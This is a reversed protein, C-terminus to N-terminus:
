LFQVKKIGLITQKVVDSLELTDYFGMMSAHSACTTFTLSMSIDDGISARITPDNDDVFMDLFFKLDMLRRFYLKLVSTQDLQMVEPDVTGMTDPEVWHLMLWGGVMALDRRLYRGYADIDDDPDLKTGRIYEELRKEDSLYEDELKGIRYGGTLNRTFQTMPFWMGENSPSDRSTGTSRFFLQNIPIRRTFTDYYFVYVIARGAYTGLPKHIIQVIDSIPLTNFMGKYFTNYTDTKLRVGLRQIGLQLTRDVPALTLPQIPFGRRVM